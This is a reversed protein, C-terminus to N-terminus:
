KIGLQIHILSLQEKANGIDAFIHEPYVPLSKLRIHFVQGPLAQQVLLSGSIQFGEILSAPLHIKLIFLQFLPHQLNGLVNLINEVGQFHFATFAPLKCYIPRYPAALTVPRGKCPLM